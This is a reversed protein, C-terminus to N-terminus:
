ASPATLDGQNNGLVTEGVARLNAWTLLVDANSNAPNIPTNPLSALATADNASTANNVLDTRYQSYPIESLNPTSTGLGSSMEKFDINVTIPTELSQEFSSIAQNIGAEITVANPDSTITTDFTPNIVINANASSCWAALLALVALIPPSLRV